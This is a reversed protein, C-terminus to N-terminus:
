GARVERPRCPCGPPCASPRSRAARCRCRAVEQALVLLLLGLEPALGLGVHVVAVEDGVLEHDPHDELLDLLLPASPSGARRSGASPRGPRRARRRARRCPGGASPRAASRPRRRSPSGAARRGAGTCSRAGRGRRTRGAWSRAAEAVLVALREELALVVLVLRDLLPERGVMLLGLREDVVVLLSPQQPAEVARPRRVLDVVEDAGRERGGARLSGTITLFVGASISAMALAPSIWTRVISRSAPLIRAPTVVPSSSAAASFYM